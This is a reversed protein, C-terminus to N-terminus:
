EPLEFLSLLPAHDSEPYKTDTAFAASEDHLLENHVETGRYYALMNRSMLVHDIMEGRGLYFLTYRKSEPISTACPVMVRRTLEGNGTEEVDGRVAKLPVDDVDSNFDGAAVIMADEDEDFLNDILMRLELAQGVRKMSSLFYGEAWGSATKWTYPDEKQGPVDTPRKSKLHVNLVNLTRGDPLSLRSHLIPREWTLEEAEDEGDGTVLRYAPPPAFDHKYQDSQPIGFRSLTVLNREAYPEDGDVLTTTSRNYDAYPTGELLRDLASLARGGRDGQGNVEQLCLVDAELRLLRPRMLGIREELTPGREGGGDDFNELNFTAVRLSTPM